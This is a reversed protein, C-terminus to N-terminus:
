RGEAKRAIVPRFMVFPSSSAPPLSARTELSTSGAANLWSGGRVARDPSGVAAITEQPADLFPLPSYPDACWEWVGDPFFVGSGAGWSRVSKAAYEWEAETPLRVEWGSYAVPLRLSLWQCFAQAAHWSVAGQGAGPRNLGAGIGGFDAIYETTALGQEELTERRSPHWQPNADIFDAFAPSPVETTCIMFPEVAFRHPFPEGMVLSGGGIAAFLLGGVRIQSEPPMGALGATEKPPPSLTEQAILGAFAALQNQYWASSILVAASDAPLTDALWAASSPNGSLYAAIESVSRVLSVPSPPIGGSGALTKARALDRLAARTVAFRAAAFIIGQAEEAAADLGVRYAGESLSLPVQWAATPEGGFSWAAYDAASSLLVGAPDAASLTVSFGYRRPFLKSAFVQGPIDREAREPAFGPLVAELVHRGKPIFVRCPSSGAYVGDVRLAAGAPESSFVVVSGPNVMGPFLLIFFLAVFLIAGYIAALYVGPRMGLFPKLKVRDDHEYTTTPNKKGPMTANYAPPPPSTLTEVIM